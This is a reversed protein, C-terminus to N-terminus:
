GSTMSTTSASRTPKVRVAHAVLGGSRELDCFSALSDLLPGRIQEEAWVEELVELDGFALLEAGDFDGPAADPEAEPLRFFQAVRAAQPVAAAIAGHERLRAEFESLSLGPRRRLELIVRAGPDGEDATEVLLEETFFTWSSAQLDIYKEMLPLGESVFVPDKFGRQAAAYSAFWAETIGEVPLAPLGPLGDAIRHHQVYREMPEVRLSVRPHLVGWYYHFREVSIDPRRPVLELVKIGPARKAM